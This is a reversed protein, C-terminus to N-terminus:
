PLWGAITVIKGAWNVITDFTSHHHSSSGAAANDDAYADRRLSEWPTLAFRGGNAVASYVLVYGAFLPIAALVFM